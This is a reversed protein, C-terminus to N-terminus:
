IEGSQPIEGSSIVTGAASAISLVLGTPNICFWVCERFTRFIQIVIESRFSRAFRAFAFREVPGFVLAPLAAEHLFASLCPIRLQETSKDRAVGGSALERLKL